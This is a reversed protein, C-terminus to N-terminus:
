GYIGVSYLLGSVALLGGVLRFIIRNHTDFARGTKAGTQRQAFLPGVFFFFIGFLCM